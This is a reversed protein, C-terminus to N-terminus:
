EDSGRQNLSSKTEKMEKKAESLEKQADIKRFYALGISIKYYALEEDGKKLDESAEKIYTKIKELEDENSSSNNKLSQIKREAISILNKVEKTQDQAKLGGAFTGLGAATLAAFLLSKRFSKIHMIKEQLIKNM